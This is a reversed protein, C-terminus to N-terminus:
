EENGQVTRSKGNKKAQDAMFEWNEAVHGYVRNIMQADVHGALDKVIASDVGAILKGTIYSHRFLYLCLKRGVEEELRQFRCNVSYPTWPRGRSNRFIPGSPYKRVLRAVIAQAEPTMYVFRRRNKKGEPPPFHWRTKDLEVHRAELALLEQPRPGCEWAVIILNKFFEDSNDLVANYEEETVFDERHPPAPKEVGRAPNRDILEQNIAWNFARNVARWMGHKTGDSVRQADLWQQVHHAKVDKTTVKAGIHSAFSNIHKLYWKYTEQKKNKETWDLFADLLGVAADAAVREPKSAMLEHFRNFAEKKNPGLRMQQGDLCVYWQKNQKRFWPKPRRAM